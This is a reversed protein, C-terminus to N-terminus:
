QGLRLRAAGGNRQQDATELGTTQHQWGAMEQDRFTRRCVRIWRGTTIPLPLDNFAVRDSLTSFCGDNISDPHEDLFVWIM